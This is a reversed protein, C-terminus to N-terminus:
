VAPMGITEPTIAHDVLFASLQDQFFQVVRTPCTASLYALLWVWRRAGGSRYEDWCEEFAVAVGADALARHYARVAEAEVARRVAPETHSIAFQGLDQPGSGVGVVEFDIFRVEPDCPAGPRPRVMANAPHFDGHVLTWARRDAGRFAEWSARSFSADMCALLLPSWRVGPCGRGRQWCERGMAQAAEWSERGRGRAWESGRLWLAEPLGRCGWYPAHLQAAARYAAVTLARVDVCGGASAYLAESARPGEGWNHPSGGGFLEGMQVYGAARLDEMLVARQAGPEPAAWAYHVEPVVGSLSVACARLFLAERSLGLARQQQEYDARGTKLVLRVERGQATRAVFRSLQGSLGGSLPTPDPAVSVLPAGVLQGVWQADTWDRPAELWSALVRVSQPGPCGELRLRTFGLSMALKEAARVVVHPMERETESSLVLTDSSAQDVQLTCKRDSAHILELPLDSTSPIVVRAGTTACVLVFSAM